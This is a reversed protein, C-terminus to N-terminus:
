GADGLVREAIVRLAYRQRTSIRPFAPLDAVFAREWPRLDEPREALRRCVARWRGHYPQRKPLPDPQQRAM